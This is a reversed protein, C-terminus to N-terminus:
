SQSAQSAPQSSLQVEWYLRSQRALQSAKGVRDPRGRAPWRTGETTTRGAPAKRRWCMGGSRSPRSWPRSTLTPPTPDEAPHLPNAHLRGTQGSRCVGLAGRRRVQSPTIRHLVGNVDPRTGGGGTGSGSAGSGSGNAHAGAAQQPEVAAFAPEAYPLGPQSFHLAWGPVVAPVSEAPKIMRRGEFVKRRVPPCSSRPCALRNASARLCRVMLSRLWAQRVGRTGLDTSNRTRHKRPQRYPQTVYM